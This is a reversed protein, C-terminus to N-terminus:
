YVKCILFPNNSRSQNIILSLDYARNSKEISNPDNVFVRGDDTLGRLVIYHGGNSFYGKGMYAIVPWGQLLARRISANNKMGYDVNIGYNNGLIRINELSLGNGSYMGALCTDRFITEPSQLLEPKLYSLVMSLCVAACGSTSVSKEQGKYLALVKTFSGQLMIPIPLGGESFSSSLRWDEDIDVDENVVELFRNVKIMTSEAPVHFPILLLISLFFVASRIKHLLLMRWLQYFRSMLSM